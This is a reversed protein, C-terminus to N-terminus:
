LIRPTGLFLRLPDLLVLVVVVVLVVLPLVLQLEENQHSGEAVRRKEPWGEKEGMRDWDFYKDGDREREQIKRTQTKKKKRM